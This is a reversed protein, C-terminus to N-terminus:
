HIIKYQSSTVVLYVAVQARGQLDTAPIASIATILDSRMDTPMQSHMFLMGLYDALQAPNAAQQGIASTATLDITLGAAGNHIINNALTLRPIITGTNELDFEPSNVDTGPIVYQPPFYNFVSAQTFPAEGVGAVSSSMFSVFPYDDSPNTQTADLARVLNLTWLLPERLHGGDVAPSSEAQDGTQADGARAEQDMIIATLVAKMDGRVGSGNNAFVAAVRQAYGASPNGTVLHQILQKSIFPGVNSHAFINDLAGKLDQEASQGAPLTTGNLLIKATTDHRSEVPVMLYNWNATYNFSAPTTGDPNANTWGTYARAFAEVQLETYTPLPNGSSDTQPTGDANLLNPGLSFLQMMERGFNENAIQGTAPKGSNLMNLYTGMAPSLTGDQMIQRYNTFADNALTNLYFPLANNQQVPAVWIESLAMAVRQRLQDNGFATVKLFDSQTCHWNSTSSACETDPSPPESFSTPPQNFQETLAAQLGIQQVHAITDATPGFSTQDLFRAAATASVQPLTLSVNVAKSQTEGPNPNEVVVSIQMPAASPDSVTTQLDNPGVADTSVAQGGILLTAGSLFSFGQVDVLFHLGGDTTSGVATTIVPVQDLITANLNGSVSPTAASTASIVIANATPVSAPPSYLGSSAITGFTANGGAVGNIAWTVSQNPTGAVTATYQGPTGINVTSPGTVTVATAVGTPASAAPKLAVSIAGSISSNAASVAAISVTGESPMTAPASYLGAASITGLQANGGSAQNVTWSVTQNTSGAVTAAYESTSGLAVTAAGTVTVTVPTPATPSSGNNSGCAMLLLLVGSVCGAVPIPRLYQPM